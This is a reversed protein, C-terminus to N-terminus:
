KFVELHLKACIWRLCRRPCWFCTLTCPQLLLATHPQVSLLAFVCVPLFSMCWPMILSAIFLIYGFAICCCLLVFLFIILCADICNVISLDHMQRPFTIKSMTKEVFMRFLGPLVTAELMLLKEVISIDCNKLCKSIYNPVYRDWADGQADFCTLTCPQLLSVTHPQVSLLAFVCVPLFSICLPM